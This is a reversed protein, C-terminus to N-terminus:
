KVANILRQVQEVGITQCAAKLTEALAVVDVPVPQSDVPLPTARVMEADPGNTSPLTGSMRTAVAPPLGNGVHTDAPAQRPKRGRKRPRRGKEDRSKVNSVEQPTIHFGPNAATAIAALETPTKGPNAAIAARIMNSKKPPKAATTTAATRAMVADGEHTTPSDNTNAHNASSQTVDAM